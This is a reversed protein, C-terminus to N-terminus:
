LNAMLFIISRSNLHSIESRIGEKRDLMLSNVTTVFTPSHINMRENKPKFREALIKLVVKPHVVSGLHRAIGVQHGNTADDILLESLIDWSPLYSIRNRM